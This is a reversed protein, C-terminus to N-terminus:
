GRRTVGPAADALSEAAELDPADVVRRAVDLPFGQRGLAALDRDRRTARRAPDGFPGIRRRRAYNVAAALDSGGGVTDTLAEIAAEALDAAIGKQALRARIARKSAGHRHLSAARAEAFARDDLLGTHRYREILAEVGARGAEADATGARVARDVRRMLVRRLGAESAAFRALYALAVRELVEASAKPAAKRLRRHREGARRRPEAMGAGDGKTM